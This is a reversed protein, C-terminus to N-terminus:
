QITRYNGRAQDATGFRYGGSPVAIEFRAGSGARGTEEISIGTIDLVERSIFLGFGTNKGFGRDFIRERITDTIGDGDDECVIIRDGDRAELAFRITTVKGGHRLSNDILNFFVRAILPDAYVEMGAPLENKLMISGLTSSKGADQVLRPLDQWLPAYVGVQEYDKTFRIMAAIRSCTDTIRTFYANLAPDPIKRHLLTLYGDLTLLQNSIDHRTIGSLLNLKKNAQRLAEEALKRETINEITSLIYPQGDMMVISSSFRCSRIEGSKERCRLEMGQVHFKERLEAVLRAYADADVFIDLEGSQKGIVEDREYGTNRSFADNVDAFTGDAASVLTLAVPNSKFITTFKRESELLQAEARKRETIERLSVLMATTNGFPIKKGICEVWCEQLSKTILKYCVLYADIGQSVQGIDHLVDARSEPAIYEMLNAKGALAQYDEVGILLGTAKNAFLLMGTFDAIIIADLSHEVLARFKDESRKLAEQNDVLEELQSRLEEETATLQEYASRLEDKVRHRTVAQRIKHALEAFQATPAGGKQIYFDAGNNIADIVVEERGRGTFLIFPIDGFRERVAKLLEIGDMVPMQYDAIIADYRTSQMRSLADPASVTTDVSFEGGQELFLKALELLSPEDDIYLVHYM